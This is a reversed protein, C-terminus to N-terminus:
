WEMLGEAWRYVNNTKPYKHKVLYHLLMIPTTHMGSTAFKKCLRNIFFQSFYLLKTEPGGQVHTICLYKSL